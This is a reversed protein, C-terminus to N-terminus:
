TGCPQSTGLPSNSARALSARRRARGRPFRLRPGRVRPGRPMSPTTTRCGRPVFAAPVKPPVPAGASVSGPGPKGVAAPTAAPAPADGAAGRQLICADRPGLLALHPPRPVMVLLFRIFRLTWSASFIMGLSPPAMLVRAGAQGPVGSGDGSRVTRLVGRSMQVLQPEWDRGQFSFRPGM